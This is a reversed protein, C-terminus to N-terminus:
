VIGNEDPISQYFRVDKPTGNPSIPFVSSSEDDSQSLIGSDDEYSQDYSQDEYDDDRLLQRPQRCLFMWGFFLIVIFTMIFAILKVATFTQFFEKIQNGISNDHSTKDKEDCSWREKIFNSWLKVTSHDDLRKPTYIKGTISELRKTVYGVDFEVTYLTYVKGELARGATVLQPLSDLQGNGNTSNTDGFAQIFDSGSVEESIMYLTDNYPTVAIVDNLTANGQFLDYRFAGTNQILLMSESGKFLQTPIVDEVYLRWLSDTKDLGNFLHYTNNPCGIVENLGLYNQTSVILETLKRGSESELPESDPLGLLGKLVKINADIFVHDFSAMTTNFSLSTFGITDLYRGAEFSTSFPDLQQFKRVHSHGTIFQVPMTDGCILRIKDLIVNVLPDFADMHALVLIADFNGETGRLVNEFWTANVVSEVTEVATIACNNLFDYLFGFTLITNGSFKGRLFTYRSGIPDNSKSLLVNSTLYTGNWFDVFGGPQTMFEITTNKYLEHNGINLADWPMHKLIPILEKPPYTSLGTGDMFDGNMVFFLDKEEQMSRNLLKEYFSIVDGYNANLTENHTHGAVWSHVDTVVLFNIDQFVLASERRESSDVVFQPSPLSTVNVEDNTHNVTAGSNTPFFSYFIGLHLALSTVNAFTFPTM